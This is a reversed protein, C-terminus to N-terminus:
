AFALTAKAGPLVKAAILGIFGAGFGIVYGLRQRRSPAIALSEHEPLADIKENLASFTLTASDMAGGQQSTRLM